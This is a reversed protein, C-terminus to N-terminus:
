EAYIFETICAYEWGSKNKALLHVSPENPARFWLVAFDGWVKVDIRFPAKKPAKAKGAFASLMEQSGPMGIDPPQIQKKEFAMLLATFIAEKEKQGPSKGHQGVRTVVEENLRKALFDDSGKFPKPCDQLASAIDGRAKLKEPPIEDAFSTTGILLLALFTLRM